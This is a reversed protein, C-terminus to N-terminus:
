MFCTHVKVVFEVTYGGAEDISQKWDQKEECYQVIM